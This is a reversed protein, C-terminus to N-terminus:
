NERLQSRRLRGDAEYEVVFDVRRGRTIRFLQKSTQVADAVVLAAGLVVPAVPACNVGAYIGAVLARDGTPGPNEPRGIRIRYTARTGGDALPEERRARGVVTEVEDRAQGVQISEVDPDQIQRLM